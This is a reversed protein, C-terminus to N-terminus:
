FKVTKINKIKFIKLLLYNAITPLLNGFFLQELTSIGLYKIEINGFM